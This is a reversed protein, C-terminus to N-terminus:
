QIYRYCRLLYHENDILTARYYLSNFYQVYRRGISQLTKALSDCRQPTVLLHVHKTMLVYAHIDCEHRKAAEYLCQPYFRYDPEAVFIPSRNNGRQILHLPQDPVYYCPLRAMFLTGVRKSPLSYLTIEVIFRTQGQPIGLFLM